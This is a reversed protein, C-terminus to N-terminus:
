SVRTLIAVYGGDFDLCGASPLTLKEAELKFDGNSELFNEILLNNEEKQLSCTSYCIKGGNKVFDTAKQLLQMQTKALKAIAKKTIRFRVEPRRALVGTNSCPVDLLVADFKGGRETVKQLESYKIIDISKLGLRKINDKVLELRVPDIDTAIITAKDNTLEALQTTKTGPAACMDLIKCGTQPKLLRASLAATLDQISFLGESFGPLATVMKPSKVRIMTKDVIWAEVGAEKLRKSLKEATTKLVNTRLYISPKRNSAFCFQRTKELGFDELWDAVLCEPLSFAVSLYDIPKEAPEPLLDVDFQCGFVSNQPLTRRPNAQSLPLQRVQIHASIRRLVANVFSSVKKGSFVKANEVAENVIAYVPSRTCYILEYSAIRIINLIKEPIREISRDSLVTIVRDISTRNRITGYVLDTAKQREATAPLLKSLATEAFESVLEFSDLAKVAIFRATSKRKPKPMEAMSANAM